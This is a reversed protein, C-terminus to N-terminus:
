PGSRRLQGLGVGDINVVPGVGGVVLPFQLLGAGRLEEPPLPADSAGFDVTKSKIQRVGAASGVPQYNISIGAETRFTDLWKALLPFVFTSGAGSIERARATTQLGICCAATALVLLRQLRFMLRAISDLVAFEASGLDMATRDSLAVVIIPPAATAVATRASVASAPVEASATPPLAAPREPLGEASAGRASKNVQMAVRGASRWNGGVFESGESPSSVFEDRVANDGRRPQDKL